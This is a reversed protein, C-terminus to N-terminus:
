IDAKIAKFKRKQKKGLLNNPYKLFCQLLFLHGSKSNLLIRKNSNKRQHSELLKLTLKCGALGQNKHSISILPIPVMKGRDIFQYSFSRKRITLEKRESKREKSAETKKRGGNEGRL